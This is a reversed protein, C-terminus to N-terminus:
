QLISARASGSVCQALMMAAIWEWTRKHIGQKGAPGWGIYQKCQVKPSSRESIWVGGNEVVEQEGSVGVCWLVQGRWSVDSM